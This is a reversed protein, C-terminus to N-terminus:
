RAGRGSGYRNKGRLRACPTHPAHAKQGDRSMSYDEIEYDRSNVIPVSEYIVGTEAKQDSFNVSVYKVTGTAFAPVSALASLSAAIILTNLKKKM